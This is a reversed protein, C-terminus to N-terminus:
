PYPPADIERDVTSAFSHRAPTHTTKQWAADANERRVYVVTENDTIKLILRQEGTSTEFCRHPTVRVPDVAM